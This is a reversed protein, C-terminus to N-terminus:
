KPYATEITRTATNVWMQITGQGFPGSVLVRDGQSAVKQGYRYAQRIADEIQSPTMWDPFLDKEGSQIARIGGATHGSLIHELDIGIKKWKPLNVPKPCRRLKNLKDAAQYLSEEEGM